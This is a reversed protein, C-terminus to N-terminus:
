RYSSGSSSSCSSSSCSSSSSGSAVTIFAQSLSSLPSLSPSPSLSPPPPLPPACPSFAATLLAPVVAAQQAWVFGLSSLAAQAVQVFLIAGEQGQGLRQGEGSSSSESSSEGSSPVYEGGSLELGRLGEGVVRQLAAVDENRVRTFLVICGLALGGLGVAAQAFVRVEDPTLASAGQGQQHQTLLMECVTACTVYASLILEHCPHLAGAKNNNAFFQLMKKIVSKCAKPNSASGGEGGRAASALLNNCMALETSIVHLVKGACPVIQHFDLTIDTGECSVSASTTNNNCDTDRESESSSVIIDVESLIHDRPFTAAPATATASASSVSAETCRHCDCTFSYAASLQARRRETSQYLPVYNYCLEDGPIIDAIAQMVLVPPQGPSVVFHHACNPCCSHNLMSIFPFTGLGVCRKDTDVVRHANSQIALLLHNVEETSLPLGTDELLGALVEAVALIDELSEADMSAEPAELSMVHAFLNSRGWSPYKPVGLTLQLDLVEQRKLAALRIILRIAETNGEISLATFAQVAQVELHHVAADAQLCQESCYRIPDDAAVGFIQEGKRADPVHGCHSCAVAAFTAPTIMAYPVEQLVVDGGILLLLSTM